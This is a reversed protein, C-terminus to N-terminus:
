FARHLVLYPIPSSFPNQSLLGFRLSYRELFDSDLKRNFKHASNVASYINGSYWALEIVTLLAGLGNNGQQFSSVAAWAFLANVGFAILADQKRDLYLHGAGPLIAALTGATTPSKYFLNEAKQFFAEHDEKESDVLPSNKLLLRASDFRKQKVLGWLLARAASSKESSRGEQLIKEWLLMAKDEQGLECYARGTKFQIEEKFPTNPTQRLVGEWHVIAELYSKLLFYATGLLYNAEEAKTGSPYLFLLRKFETAARYYDNHQLLHNAFAFQTEEPPLPGAPDPFALSPLLLILLLGSLFKGLM